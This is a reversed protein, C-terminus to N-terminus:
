LSIYSYWQLIRLIEVSWVTRAKSLTKIYRSMIVSIRNHFKTHILMYWMWLLLIYCFKVWSNKFQIIKYLVIINICKLMKTRSVISENWWLEPGFKKFGNNRDFCHYNTNIVLSSPTRLIRIRFLKNWHSKM